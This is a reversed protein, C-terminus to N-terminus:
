LLGFNCDNSWHLTQWAGAGLWTAERGDEFLLAGDGMLYFRSVVNLLPSSLQVYTLFSSMINYNHGMAYGPRPVKGM